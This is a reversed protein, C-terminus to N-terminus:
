EGVEVGVTPALTLPAQEQPPIGVVVVLTLVENDIKFTIVTEGSSNGANVTFGANQEGAPLTFQQPSVDAVQASASTALVQMDVAAPASLLQVVINRSGGVDLFLKGATGLPLVSVGVPAALIPLVSGPPPTGVIVTFEWVETGARLILVSKGEVGTTITLEAVQEGAPIVVPGEVRAVAPNSSTVTVATDATAPSSLLRLTVTQEAGVPAVVQGVSPPHLVSVGVAPAMATITQGYVAESVSIIASASGLESDALVTTNGEVVGTVSILRETQGAEFLLSEESFVILTPDIANLNVPLDTTLPSSLSLRLTATDGLPVGLLQPELRLGVVVQAVVQDRALETGSSSRAIATITLNQTTAAAPTTFPITFPRESVAPLEQGNVDFTVTAIAFSASARAELIIETNEIVASSNVPSTIGFSGTTFSFTLPQLLPNGEVDALGNGVKDTIDATLEITVLTELSLAREPIFRVTTENNLYSFSGAVPTGGIHVKFSAEDITAPDIPETFTVDISTGVSVEVANNEPIVQVVQPPTLDPAVTTFTTVLGASLGNRALDTIGAGISLTFTAGLPLPQTAPTLTVIQDGGSFSYGFPV